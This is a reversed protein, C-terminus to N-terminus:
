VALAASIRAAVDDLEGTGDVGLLVGQDDYYGVLPATQEEYVSLRRMVTEETDDPRQYLEGSCIDCVGPKVPPAFSQQFMTGCSRCTLRGTLREVIAGAPVQVDLVRDITTGSEALAEAQGLTRPFGDLIFGVSADAEALRHNVMDVVLSDPVLEGRDMFDEARKGLETGNKRHARFLDGTSIQPVGLHESLRRAQTGKGAGPAGLFILRM